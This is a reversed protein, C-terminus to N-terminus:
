MWGAGMAKLYQSPPQHSASDGAKSRQEVEKRTQGRELLSSQLFCLFAAPLRESM